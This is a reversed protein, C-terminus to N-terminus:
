HEVPSATTGLGLGARWSRNAANSSTSSLLILICGFVFFASLSGGIRCFISVEFPQISLGGHIGLAETLANNISVDHDRFEQCLAQEAQAENSHAPPADARRPGQEPHTVAVDPAPPAAHSTSAKADHALRQSMMCCDERM